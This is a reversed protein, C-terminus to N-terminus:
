FIEMLFLVAMHDLLEVEPFINSSFFVSHQLAILVKGEINVAANNVIVLVYCLSSPFPLGSWYEQRSVGM